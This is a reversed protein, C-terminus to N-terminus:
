DKTELSFRSRLVSDHGDTRLLDPPKGALQLLRLDQRGQHVAM